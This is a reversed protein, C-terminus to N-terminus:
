CSLKNTIVNYFFELVNKKHLKKISKKLKCPSKQVRLTNVM